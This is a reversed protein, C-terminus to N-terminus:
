WSWKIRSQLVFRVYFFVTMFIYSNLNSFYMHSCEAHDSDHPHKDSVGEIEPLRYNGLWSFHRIKQQFKWINTVM